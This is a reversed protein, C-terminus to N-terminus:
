QLSSDKSVNTKNLRKNEQLFTVICLPRPPAAVGVVVTGCIGNLFVDYLASFAQSKIFNKLEELDIVNFKLTEVFVDGDEGFDRSERENSVMGFLVDAL